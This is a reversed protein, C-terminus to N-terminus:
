WVLIARSPGPLTGEAPHSRYMPVGPGGLVGYRESLCLRQLLMRDKRATFRWSTRRGTSYHRRAPRALDCWGVPSRKPDPTGPNRQRDLTPFCAVSSAIWRCSRSGM